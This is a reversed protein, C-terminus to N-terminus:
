RWLSAPPQLEQSTVECRHSATPAWRVSSSVLSVSPLRPRGTCFSPLLQSEVGPHPLLTIRDPVWVRRPRPQLGWPGRVAQRRDWCVCDEPCMAGEGRQECSLAGQSSPCGTWSELAEGVGPQWPGPCAQAPPASKLGSVPVRGLAVVTPAPRWPRRLAAQVQGGGGSCGWLGLRM